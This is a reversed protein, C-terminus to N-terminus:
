LLWRSHAWLTMCGGKDKQGRGEKSQPVGKELKRKKEIVWGNERPRFIVNGFVTEDRLNWPWSGLLPVKLASHTLPIPLSLLQFPRVYQM